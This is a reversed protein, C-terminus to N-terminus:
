KMWICDLLGLYKENGQLLNEYCKRDMVATLKGSLAYGCSMELTEYSEELCDVFCIETLGELVEDGFLLGQNEQDWLDIKQFGNAIFEEGNRMTEKEAELIDMPRIFSVYLEARQSIYWEYHQANQEWPKYNSTNAVLYLVRPKKGELYEDRKRFLFERFHIYTDNGNQIKETLDYLTTLVSYRCDSVDINEAGIKDILRQMLLVINYSIKQERPLYNKGTSENILFAMGSNRIISVFERHDIYFRNHVADLFDQDSVHDYFFWIAAQESRSRGMSLLLFFKEALVEGRNNSRKYLLHPYFSRRFTNDDIDRILDYEIRSWENVTGLVQETTPISINTEHRRYITLQEKMLYIPYKVATLFWLRFDGLSRFYVNMMGLEFFLDRDMLCSCANMANGQILFRRIWDYRSKNPLHSYGEPYNEGGDEILLKDWTFCAKYEPHNLLFNIQKELKDSEIADDSAMSNVYQFDGKKMEHQIHMFAGIFATNKEFNYFHIRDDQYSEIVEKTGDTSGDNVVFLEWNTYTQNIISDMAETIYARHNYCPMYFAVKPLKTNM